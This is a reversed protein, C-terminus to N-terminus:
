LWMFVSLFSLHTAHALLYCRVPCSHALFLYKTFSDSSLALASVISFSISRVDCMELVTALFQISNLYTHRTRTHLLDDIFHCFRRSYSTCICVLCLEIWTSASDDYVRVKVNEVWKTQNMCMMTEDYRERAYINNNKDTKHTKSLLLLLNYESKISAIIIVWMRANAQGHCSPM